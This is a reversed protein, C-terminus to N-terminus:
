SNLLKQKEILFEEETLYGQEKLSALKKYDEVNNSNNILVSNFLVLIQNTGTRDLVRYGQRAKTAIGEDNPM